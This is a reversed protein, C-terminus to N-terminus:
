CGTLVGGGVASVVGACVQVGDGAIPVGDAPVGTLGGCVQGGDAAVPIGDLGADGPVAGPLEGAAM